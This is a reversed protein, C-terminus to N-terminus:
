QVGGDGVIHGGNGSGPAEWRPKIPIDLTCEPVLVEGVAQLFCLWGRLVLESERSGPGFKFTGGIRFVLLVEVAKDLVKRVIRFAEPGKDTELIM